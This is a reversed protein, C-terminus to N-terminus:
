DPCPLSLDRATIIKEAHIQAVAELAKTLQVKLKLNMALLSEIEAEYEQPTTM